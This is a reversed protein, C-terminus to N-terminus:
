TKLLKHLVFWVTLLFFWLFGWAIINSTFQTIVPASVLIISAYIHFLTFAVLSGWFWLCATYFTIIWFTKLHTVIFRLFFVVYDKLFFLSFLWVVTALLWILVDNANTIIQSINNLIDLM